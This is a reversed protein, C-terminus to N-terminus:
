PNSGFINVWNPLCPDVGLGSFYVVGGKQQSRADLSQCENEKKIFLMHNYLNIFKKSFKQFLYIFLPYVM